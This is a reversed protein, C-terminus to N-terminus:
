NSYHVPDQRAPYADLVVLDLPFLFYLLGSAPVVKVERWALNHARHFILNAMAKQFPEAM